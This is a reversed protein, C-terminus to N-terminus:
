NLNGDKDCTWVFMCNVHYCSRHYYGKTQIIDGDFKCIHKEKIFIRRIWDIM